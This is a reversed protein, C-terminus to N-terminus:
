IIFYTGEELAEKAQAEVRLKLAKLKDVLSILERLERKYTAAAGRYYSNTSVIVLQSYRGRTEEGNLRRLTLPEGTGVLSVLEGTAPEGQSPVACNLRGRRTCREFFDGAFVAIAPNLEFAIRNGNVGNGRRHRAFLLQLRQYTMYVETLLKMQAASLAAPPSLLKPQLSPLGEPLANLAETALGPTGEQPTLANKASTLYGELASLQEFPARLENSVVEWHKVRLNHNVRGSRMVGFLIGIFLTIVAAGVTMTVAAKFDIGRQRGEFANLDDLEDDSLQDALALSGQLPHAFQSEVSDDIVHMEDITAPDM